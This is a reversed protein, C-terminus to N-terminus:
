PNPVRALEQAVVRQVHEVEDRILGRLRPLDDIGVLMPALRDPMTDWAHLIVATSGALDERVHRKEILEGIEQKHKDELRLREARDKKAREQGPDLLDGNEGVYIRRLAEHSDYLNARGQTQAVPLSSLRRQLTRREMGTWEALKSITVLM